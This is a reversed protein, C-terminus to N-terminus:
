LPCVDDDSGKAKEKEKSKGKDKQSGANKLIDSLDPLDDDSDDSLEM